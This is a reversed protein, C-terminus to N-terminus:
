GASFISTMVRDIYLELYGLLGPSATRFGMDCLLSFAADLM